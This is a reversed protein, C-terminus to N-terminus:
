LSARGASLPALVLRGRLRVHAWFQSGGDPATRASRGTATAVQRRLGDRRPARQALAPRGPGQQVGPDPHPALRPAQHVGARRASTHAHPDPRRRADTGLPPVHPPARPPLTPSPTASPVCRTGSWRLSGRASRSRGKNSGPVTPGVTRPTAARPP